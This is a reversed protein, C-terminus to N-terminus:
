PNILEKAKAAIAEDTPFAARDGSLLTIQGQDLWMLYREGNQQALVADRGELTMNTAVGAANPVPLTSRWDDIAALQARVPEPLLPLELVAERIAEPDIGDEVTLKPAGFKAIQMRGQGAAELSGHVGAPLQITIAKGDAAAPLLSTGGLLKILRNVSDVHLKFTVTSEPMYQLKMASGAKADIAPVQFGLLKEAEAQTVERSPGGGTQSVSGYKAIDFTQGGPSGQELKAALGDFDIGSVDVGVMHQMRFTQMMSALARDGWSTALLGYLAACAAAAAAWKRFRRARGYPRAGPKAGGATGREPIGTWAGGDGEGGRLSVPSGDANESYARTPAAQETTMTNDEELRTDVEDQKMTEASAQGSWRSWVDPAQEGNVRVEFAKWARATDWEDQKRKNSATM